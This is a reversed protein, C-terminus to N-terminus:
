VVRQTGSPLQHSQGQHHDSSAKGLAWVQSLTSVEPASEASVRLFVPGERLRLKEMQVLLGKWSQAKHETFDM